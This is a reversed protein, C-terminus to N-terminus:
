LFRFGFLLYGNIMAMKIPNAIPHMRAIEINLSCTALFDGTAEESTFTGELDFKLSAM